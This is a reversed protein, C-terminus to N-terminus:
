CVYQDILLLLLYALFGLFVILGQNGQLIFLYLPFNEPKLFSRSTAHLSQVSQSYCKLHLSCLAHFIIVNIDHPAASIDDM